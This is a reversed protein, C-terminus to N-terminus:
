SHAEYRLHLLFSVQHVQFHLMGEFQPYFRQKAYWVTWAALGESEINLNKGQNPWCFFSGNSSL